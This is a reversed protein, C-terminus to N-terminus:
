TYVDGPACNSFTSVVLQPIIMGGPITFTGAYYGSANTIFDYSFSMTSDLSLISVVQNPVPLGTTISTVTGSVTVIAGQSIAGFGTLVMLTLLYIFKKM